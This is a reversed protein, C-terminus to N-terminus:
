TKHHTKKLEDLQFSFPLLQKVDRVALVPSAEGAMLVRIPENHRNEYEALVQRCSGCPTVARELKFNSSSAYIAIAKVATKPYHSQAHFLAVREACLGSPYAANEQNNGTVLKGDALKVAAGVTFGSYPAYAMLAAQRAAEVLEQEEVPLEKASAYEEIALTINKIKM